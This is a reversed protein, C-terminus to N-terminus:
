QTSILGEDCTFSLPCSQQLVDQQRFYLSSHSSEGDRKWGSWCSFKVDAMIVPCYGLVHTLLASESVCSQGRGASWDVGAYETQLLQRVRGLPLALM